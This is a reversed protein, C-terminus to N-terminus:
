DKFQKYLEEMRNSNKYVACKSIDKGTYDYYKDIYYKMIPNRSNMTHATCFIIKAKPNRKLIEIAIDVGDLELVDGTKLKISFGLTIDLVAYDIKNEPKNIYKFAKFGATAGLCKVVKMEKYPNFNYKREMNKFDINYLIESDPVDDLILLVPEEKINSIKPDDYISFDVLKLKEEISLLKNKEDEILNDINEKINNNKDKKFLKKLFSLM